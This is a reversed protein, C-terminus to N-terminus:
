CFHHTAPRPSRVSGTFLYIRFKSFFFLLKTPVYHTECSVDDGEWLAAYNESDQLTKRMVLWKEVVAPLDRYIQGIRDKVGKAAILGTGPVHFLPPINAECHITQRCSTPSLAEITVTGAIYSVYLFYPFFFSFYRFFFSLFIFSFHFFFSFFHFCFSLFYFCFLLLIFAFHFCIVSVFLFSISRASYGGRLPDDAPLGHPQPGRHDRYRCYLLLYFRFLM